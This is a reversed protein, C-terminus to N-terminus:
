GDTGEEPMLVMETKPTNTHLRWLLRALAVERYSRKGMGPIKILYVPHVDALHEMTLINEITLLGLTRTSLPQRGLIEKLSELPTGEAATPIVRCEICDALAGPHRFGVGDSDSPYVPHWSETM